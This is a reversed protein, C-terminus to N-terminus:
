CPLQLSIHLYCMYISIIHLYDYNQYKEDYITNILSLGTLLDSENMNCSM